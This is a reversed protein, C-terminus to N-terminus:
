PVLRYDVSSLVQMYNAREFKSPEAVAQQSMSGKMQDISEYEKIEMWSAVGKIIETAHAIGYKLLTSAVMTASAGAMTAKIVDEATHVGSTLALDADIRGYLIAIWRLPLRLENTTSLVLNPVVELHELDFDPQYFRNFLVLGQAGAQVLRSAFNPLATFFPSLKVAIPIDISERIAKVLGIYNDELEAATVHIDTPLNYINLELADAGAQQIKSAYDIWGGRTIGNLSAIIPIGVAEKLNYIHEVYADPGISYRRLNEYAGHVPLYSLAEPFSDAGRTLDRDLKLSERVIQEEFLSYVVVAAIGAEELRRVSEIKESVPSASAILPNHLPMGLFTTSLDAM